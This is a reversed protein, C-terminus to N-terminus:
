FMKINLRLFFPVPHGFLFLTAVVCDDIGPQQNEDILVVALLLTSLVIYSASLGPSM